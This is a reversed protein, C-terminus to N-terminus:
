VRGQGGLQGVQPRDEPGLVGKQAQAVHAPPHLVLPPLRRRCLVRGSSTVPLFAGDEEDEDASELGSLDLHVVMGPGAGVAGQGGGTQLPQIM